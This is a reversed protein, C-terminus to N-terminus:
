NWVQALICQKDKKNADFTEYNGINKSLTSFNEPFFYTLNVNRQFPFPDSYSYPYSAGLHPDPLIIGIRDSLSGSGSCQKNCSNM